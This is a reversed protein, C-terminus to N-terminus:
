LPKMESLLGDKRLVRLIPNSTEVLKMVHFYPIWSAMGPKYKEYADILEKDEIFGTNMFYGTTAAFEENTFMTKIILENDEITNEVVADTFETSIRIYEEQSVDRYPISVAQGNADTYRLTGVRLYESVSFKLNDMYVNFLKSIDRADKTLKEIIFQKDKLRDELEEVRKQLQEDDASKPDNVAQEGWTLLELLTIELAEAISEAQEISLKNGRNELRHYSSPDLELRRALEAQAIGKTSRVAKINNSIDMVM